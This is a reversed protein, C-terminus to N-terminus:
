DRDLIDAEGDDGLLTGIAASTRQPRGTRKALADLAEWLSRIQYKIKPLDKAGDRAEADLAGKAKGVISAAANAASVANLFRPIHTRFAQFEALIPGLADFEARLSALQRALADVRDEAETATTGDCFVIPYSYDQGGKLSFWYQNERVFDVRLVYPQGFQVLDRRIVIPVPTWQLPEVQHPELFLRGEYVIEDAQDYLRVGLNLEGTVWPRITLATSNHHRFSCQLIASEEMVPVPENLERVLNFQYPFVLPYGAPAGLGLGDTTEAPDAPQPPASAEAIELFAEGQEDVADQRPVAFQTRAIIPRSM